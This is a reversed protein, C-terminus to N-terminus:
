CKYVDIAKVAEESERVLWNEVKTEYYVWVEADKM